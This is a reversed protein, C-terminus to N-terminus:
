VELQVGNPGSVVRDIGRKMGCVLGVGNSSDSVVPRLTWRNESSDSTLPGTRGIAEV